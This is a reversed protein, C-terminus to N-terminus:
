ISEQTSPSTEARESLGTESIDKSKVNTKGGYYAAREKGTMGDKGKINSAFGGTTSQQGQKQKRRTMEAKVAEVTGYKKLMTEWWKDTSYSM